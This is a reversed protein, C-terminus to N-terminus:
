TVSLFPASLFPDSSGHSLGDGTITIIIILEFKTVAVANQLGFKQEATMSHESSATQYNATQM